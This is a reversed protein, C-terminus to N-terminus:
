QPQSQIKKQQPCLPQERLHQHYLFQTRQSPIPPVPAVGTTEAPNPAPPTSPAETGSEPATTNATDGSIRGLIRAKKAELESVEKQLTKLREILEQRRADHEAKLTTEGRARNIDRIANGSNEGNSRTPSIQEGTTGRDPM